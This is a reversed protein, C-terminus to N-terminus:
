FKERFFFGNCFSVKGLTFFNLEFLFGIRELFHEKPVLELFKRIFFWIQSSIDMLLFQFGLATIETNESDQRITVLQSHQLVRRTTDGINDRNEETRVGAMFNLISDWRKTMAYEDLSEISQRHRDASLASFTSRHKGGGLFCHKFNERFTENLLYGPLGTQSPM